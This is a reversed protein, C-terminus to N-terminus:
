FWNEDRTIVVWLLLLVVLVELVVVGFLGDDRILFSVSWTSVMSSLFVLSPMISSVFPESFCFSVVGDSALEFPEANTQGFSILLVACSVFSSLALLYM